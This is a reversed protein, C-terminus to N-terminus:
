KWWKRWNRKNHALESKEQTEDDYVVVRVDKAKSGTGRSLGDFAFLAEVYNDFQFESKVIGDIAVQVLYSIM